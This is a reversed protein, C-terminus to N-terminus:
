FADPKVIFYYLVARLVLVAAYWLIGRILGEM